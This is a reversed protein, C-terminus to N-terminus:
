CKADGTLMLKEVIAVDAPLWELTELEKIKLWQYSKHERLKFKKNPVRCIYSYMHISFDPYCHRTEMFLDQERVELVLELEEQLERKLALVPTEGQEIKGGPFEFKYSVYDYKAEGRQVCLIEGNCIIIGAVVELQKM